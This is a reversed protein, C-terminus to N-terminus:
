EGDQGNLVVTKGLLCRLARKNNASNRAQAM